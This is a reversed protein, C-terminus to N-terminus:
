WFIINKIIKLYLALIPNAIKNLVINDVEDFLIVSVFCSMLKNDTIERTEQVGRRCLIIKKLNQPNIFYLYVRLKEKGWGKLIAYGLMGAEMLLFMPLLLLLTGTKYNQLATIIRNRELFYFKFTSSSFKYKHYVVSRLAIEFRYGLLRLRWALDMDECYMFFDENFLGSEKLASARLLCAAGSAFCIGNSSRQYEKENYQLNYSTTFGFGLYHIQNGLSNVINQKGYLMLRSQVGAIDADNKIQLVAEKLFDPEVTTDQNLLYVFECDDEIARAIGINNGKAFGTNEASTIFEIKEPFRSKYENIIRASFDISANDVIIIKYKEDPYNIATLSNLCEELYYEANYTVIVIATKPLNM